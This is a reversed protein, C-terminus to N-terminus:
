ALGGKLIEHKMDEIKKKVSIDTVSNGTQVKIGAILKPDIKNKLVIKKGTKKELATRVKDLDEESLSRASWVVVCEIGLKDNCLAIFEEATEKLYYTRDKDVLLKLFSCMDHDFVDEFTDDIFQKKEERSVMVARFFMLLDDSDELVDLLKEMQEKKEAVTSTEVALEFLGEAYRKAAESIM